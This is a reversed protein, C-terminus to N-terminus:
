HMPLTDLKIWRATLIAEALALSHPGPPPSAM